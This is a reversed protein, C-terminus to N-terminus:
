YHEGSDIINFYEYAPNRRYEAVITAGCRGGLLCCSKNLIYLTAIYDIAAKDVGMVNSMYEGVFGEVNAANGANFCIIKDTHINRKLGDLLVADETSLFIYDCKYEDFKENSINALEAVDPQVSHQYKIYDTGRVKVAFIRTNENYDPILEKLINECTEIVSPQLRIFQQYKIRLYETNIRRHNRMRIYNFWETSTDALVYNGSTKAYELSV